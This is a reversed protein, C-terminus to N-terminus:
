RIRVAKRVAHFSEGEIRILYLGAPLLSTDIRFRHRQGGALLRDGLLAVERGQVDYVSVRVNQTQDLDLEVSASEFFPNPYVMGVAYGGPLSAGEDETDVTSSVFSLNEYWAIMHDDQSASLVDPDGDRDLDAAYVSRAGYAEDTITKQLGFRGKDLNEYWAIKNDARSASLVDPDGDNDLDATYVSFARYAQLTIIKQLDFTGQGDINQYWAIKNDGSSASLVDLDGDMDVDEVHVSTALNAETTIILQESFNANGDLNEFWSITHDFSSAAVVDQDGDGDMDAAVVDIAGKTARNILTLNGFNGRGDLNEYWAITDDDFSASLVDLDGDGDLDAAYVAYANDANNTIVQLADFSGNGDFNEYWKISNDHGSASLVDMDGDGDIDAAFVDRALAAANTIVRQDGLEGGNNPYWAIKYDNFSASLVDQDGDGDIDAATVAHAGLTENFGSVTHLLSFRVRGKGAFSEYWAIKNDFSSASVVDLDFDDDLNAIDVSIAGVALTTIVQQTGFTGAGDLNPYWAVKADNTSASVVDLDGDDDLDAVRVAQAFFADNTIVQEDGFTGASDTNEFWVVKSDGASAAIVDQDGDGDLDATVVDRAADINTSIIKESSFAGAGNTNEYWAIKDDLDSASLVDVDGDGDVDSAYVAYARSATVSIIQQPGFTGGGDLNQYWAIKDDDRSASLVDLDGDGDLDAAFVSLAVFADTSIVQRNGFAGGGNNPYWAVTNDDQTAALVDLNGDANLDALYIGYVKPAQSTITQPFGFAGFGDINEYWAIRNDAAAASVIDPDGDNDIDGVRVHTAGIAQTSIVRQTGFQATAPSALLAFLVLGLLRLQITSM